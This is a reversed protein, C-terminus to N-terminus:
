VTGQVVVKLGTATADGNSIFVNLVEGLSLLGSVVVNNSAIDGAVITATAVVTSGNLYLTIDINNTPATNLFAKFLTTNFQRPVQFTVPQFGSSLPTTEDTVAAYLDYPITVVPPNSQLYGLTVADKTQSPDALNTIKNNLMNFEEHVAIKGSGTNDHLEDTHLETFNLGRFGNALLDEELPNTLGEADGTGFINNPM